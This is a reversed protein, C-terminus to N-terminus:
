GDGSGSGNRDEARGQRVERVAWVYPSTESYGLPGGTTVNSNEDGAATEIDFLGEKSDAAEKIEADALDFASKYQESIPDQPNMGRKRMLDYSVLDVLWGLLIEPYPASFPLSNGYRKRLRQHMWSTRVALRSATFGPNEAEVYDVEAVSMMTRAKFEEPTLYVVPVAM